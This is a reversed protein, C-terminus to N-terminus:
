RSAALTAFPGAANMVYDRAFHANPGVVATIEGSLEVKTPTAGFCRFNSVTISEVLM